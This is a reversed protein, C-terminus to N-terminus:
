PLEDLFKDLEAYFKPPQPDNHGGGPLTVFRKPENAADFLRKGMEYPILDDADGHSQLLPGHYDGIKSLSNLQTRMLARVPVWPYHLAAVDPISTFTSELVLGRAGDKSALDVMVSGGLSRGLLVIEKEPVGARKSLWARAARADDLIGAEKPSGESRGYGRYDFIMVSVRMDKRLLKIMETWYTLNGANGPAFLVVARPSEHAHYCGHLKTGDASQFYADEVQVDVPRWEGRPYRVPFFILTEELFMMLLVILFYAILVISLFRWATTQWPTTRKVVAATFSFNDAPRDFQM